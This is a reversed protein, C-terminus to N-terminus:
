VQHTKENDNEQDICLADIWIAIHESESQINQLANKLNERVRVLQNDVIIIATPEEPGWTYSLAIYSPIDDFSITKLRCCVLSEKPADIRPLITLIRIDRGQSDLPAYSISAM